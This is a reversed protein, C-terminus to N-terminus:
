SADTCCSPRRWAARAGLSRSAGNSSYTTVVTAGADALHRCIAAGIGGAGGTVLAVKGKLAQGVGRENDM